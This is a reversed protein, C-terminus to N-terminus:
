ALATAGAQPERDMGGRALDGVGPPLGLPPPWALLRAVGDAARRRRPRIAACSRTRSGSEGLRSNSKSCRRAMRQTSTSCRDPCARVRPRAELRPPTPAGGGVRTGLPLLGPLVGDALGTRTCDSRSLSPTPVCAAGAGCAGKDHRELLTQPTAGVIVSATASPSASVAGDLVRPRYCRVQNRRVFAPLDPSSAGGAVWVVPRPRRSLGSLRIRRQIAAPWTNLDVRTETLVSWDVLDRRLTQLERPRIMSVAGGLDVDSSEASAIWAVVDESSAIVEFWPMTSESARLAPSGSLLRLATLGAGEPLASLTQEISDRALESQVATELIAEVTGQPLEEGHLEELLSLALARDTRWLGANGILDPERLLVVAGLQEDMRAVQDFTRAPLGGAVGRLIEDAYPSEPAQDAARVLPLLDAAAAVRALGEARSAVDLDQRDFASAPVSLLTRLITQEVETDPSCRLAGKKLHRALSSSPFARALDGVYASLPGGSTRGPHEMIEFGRAVLQYASRAGPLDEGIARFFAPLTDSTGVLGDIADPLWNPEDDAGAQNRTTPEALNRRLRSVSAPPAAQLDFPADGLRRPSLAGTCFTFLARLSPWQQEWVRLVIEDIEAAAKAQVVAPWDPHLYVKTLIERALARPLEHRPRLRSVREPSLNIPQKFGALSMDLSPRKFHETLGAVDQLSGVEHLPILLSHTWVAGPRRVDPAPWTRSLVFWGDDTLPYATLYPEFASPPLPGSLDSLVLTRRQAAASLRTSSALLEHGDSYGHLAQHILVSSNM